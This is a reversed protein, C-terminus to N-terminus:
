AGAASRDAGSRTEDGARAKGTAEKARLRSMGGMPDVSDGVM